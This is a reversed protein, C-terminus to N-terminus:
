PDQLQRQYFNYNLLIQKIKKNRWNKTFPLDNRWNAPMKETKQIVDTVSATINGHIETLCDLSVCTFSSVCLMPDRLNNLFCNEFCCYWCKWELLEFYGERHTFLGLYRCFELARRAVYFFFRCIKHIDIREKRGLNELNYVM